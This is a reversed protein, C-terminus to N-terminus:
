DFFLKSLLFRETSPTPIFTANASTLPLIVIYSHNASAYLNEHLIVYKSVFICMDSILLLVLVDSHM